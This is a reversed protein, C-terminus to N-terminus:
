SKFIYFMITKLGFRFAYMPHNLLFLILIKISDSKNFLQKPPKSVWYEYYFIKFKIQSIITKSFDKNKSWENILRWIRLTYRALNYRSEKIIRNNEHVRRVAIAQHISGPMLNATLSMKYWMHTDQSIKLYGNTWYYLYDFLDGPAVEKTMTTMKSDLIYYKEESEEDEFRAEIAEYVGEIDPNNEFVKVATKFRNELYYDDADLFAIYDFSSKMIGLNRSEGAGRNENNEHTFLKVKDYQQELKKCIELSNDTSGDEVIIVEATEEQNLASLVADGIYTAANYVPIIVSIQM